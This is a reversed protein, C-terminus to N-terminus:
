PSWSAAALASTGSYTAVSISLSSNGAEQSASAFSSTVAGLVNIDADKTLGTWTASLSGSTSFAAAITAGSAQANITASTVGVATADAALQHNGTMAYLEVTCDIVGPSGGSSTVTVDGSTGTPVLAAWLTAHVAGNDNNIISTASIGGITVSTVTAGSHSLGIAAVLYRNVAAAGFNQATFTVPNPQTSGGGMSAVSTVVVSGGGPFPAGFPM